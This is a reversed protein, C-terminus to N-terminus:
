EENFYDTDIRKRVYTDVCSVGLDHEVMLDALRCGDVLVVRTDVSDAYDRANATFSSTTVFVGKRARRGQLAGVFKQIEPRGVDGSWKKAQIYIVDLGLSDEKIIGDIGGDGSRGVVSGAGEVSGGYGMRGLLEVVLKEFFAPSAQKVEALVEIALTKRLSEHASQLVEDPTREDGVGIGDATSEPEVKADLFEAFEPFQRLTSNDIREPAAQLLASGRKTIQVIGRQPAHLLGAKVLYFRAWQVRNSIVRTKGSPLLQQRQADSLGFHDAIADYTDSVRHEKNDGLVALLPLMISQYDPISM